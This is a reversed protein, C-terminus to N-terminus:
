QKHGAKDLIKLLDWDNDNCIGKVWMEKDAPITFVVTATTRTNNIEQKLKNDIESFDAALALNIEEQNFGLSVLYEADFKALKQWDYEGQNRNLRLRAETEQEVTYNRYVVPIPNLGLELAVLLRQHGGIVINKRKPNANVIVPDIFGLRKISAVLQQFDEHSIKRENDEFPILDKPNVYVLSIKEPTDTM